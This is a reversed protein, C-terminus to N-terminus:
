RQQEEKSEIEMGVKLNEMAMDDLKYRMQSIAEDYGAKFGDDFSQETLNDIDEEFSANFGIKKLRNLYETLRKKNLALLAQEIQKDTMRGEKEVFPEYKEALM